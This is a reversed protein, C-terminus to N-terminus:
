DQIRRLTSSKQTSQSLAGGVRKLREKRSSIMQLVGSTNKKKRSSLSFSGLFYYCCCKIGKPIHMDGLFQATEPVTRLFIPVVFPVKGRREGREIRLLPNNGLDLM